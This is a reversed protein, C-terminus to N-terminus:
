MSWREAASRREVFEALAEIWTSVREVWPGSMGTHNIHDLRHFVNEPEGIVLVPIGKALAYGTEVHRGGSAVEAPDFGLSRATFLVLVDCRAIDDLDTAAHRAVEEPQLATAAGTTGENIEHTEDLWSATVDIGHRVLDRAYEAVRERAAYPAALYARTM